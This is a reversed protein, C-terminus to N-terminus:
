EPARLGLLRIGMGPQSQRLDHVQVYLIPKVTGDSMFELGAVQSWDLAPAPARRGVWPLGALLALFRRRIMM